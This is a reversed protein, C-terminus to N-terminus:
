QPSKKTALVSRVISAATLGLVIAIISIRLERALSLTSPSIDVSHNINLTTFAVAHRVGVDALDMEFSFAGAELESM